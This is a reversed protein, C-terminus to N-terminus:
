RSGAPGNQEPDQRYMVLYSRLPTFALDSLQGHVVSLMFGHPAHEPESAVFMSYSNEASPKLAWYVHQYANRDAFDTLVKDGAHDPRRLLILGNGGHHGLLQGENM